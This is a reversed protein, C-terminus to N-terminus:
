ELKFGGLKDTLKIEYTVGDKFTISDTWIRAIDNININERVIHSVMYYRTLAYFFPKNRSYLKYKNDIATGEIVEGLSNFTLGDENAVVGHQFSSGHIRKCLYKCCRNKEKMGFLKKAISGYGTMITDYKYYNPRDAILTYKVCLKDFSLVDWNTVWCTMGEFGSNLYFPTEDLRVLVYAYNYKNINTMNEITQLEGKKSIIQYHTTSKIYLFFSNIDVTQRETKGKNDVEYKIDGMFKRENEFEDLPEDCVKRNKLSIIEMHLTLKHFSYNYMHPNQCLFPLGALMKKYEEAYEFISQNKLSIIHEYYIGERFEVQLIDEDTIVYYNAFHKVYTHTAFESAYLYAKEEIEAIM